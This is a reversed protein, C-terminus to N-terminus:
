AAVGKRALIGAVRQKRTVAGGTAMGSAYPDHDVPTTSYHAAGGAILGALGYKKAINILNDDFVVYNSTQQQPPKYTFKNEPNQAFALTKQVTADNPHAALDSQLHAVTRDLDGGNDKFRSAFFRESIDNSNDLSAARYKNEFGVSGNNTRSGQDLYKIGPIGAQRLAQSTDPSDGAIEGVFQGGTKGKWSDGWARQAHYAYDSNQIAEQVKQSQESLPKDWDLFHEPDANINVQYMKGASPATMKGQELLAIAELRADHFGPAEYQPSRGRLFNAAQQPDSFRTIADLALQQDQPLDVRGLTTQGRQWIPKGNFEVRDAGGLTDRYNKAVGENEAFYLGHGYAQAGEGTGIKSLDFKDFDYPSGHYATIGKPLDMPPAASHGTIAQPPVDSDTVWYGPSELTDRKLGEVKTPDVKLVQGGFAGQHAVADDLNDYFFTQHAHYQGVDGADPWKQAFKDYAQNGYQRYLSKLPQGAQYADPAVHYLQSPMSSAVSEAAGGLPVKPTTSGVFGSALDQSQAMTARLIDGQSAGAAQMQEGQRAVANAKDAWSPQNQWWNGVRQAVGEIAGALPAAVNGQPGQGHANEFPDHDVPVLDYGPDTNDPSDVM